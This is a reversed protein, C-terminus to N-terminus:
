ISVVNMNKCSTSRAQLMGGVTASMSGSNCVHEWKRPFGPNKTCKFCPQICSSEFVETKCSQFEYNYENSSIIMYHGLIRIPKRGLSFGGVTASMGGSNRFVHIRQANLAHQISLCM